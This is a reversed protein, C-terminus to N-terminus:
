GRAPLATVNDRPTVIRDIQASLAEFVALLQAQDARPDYTRRILSPLHGLAREAADVSAGSRTMLSRATRRLDHLTWNQVGCQRDFVPKRRSLGGLTHKGDTSFYFDSDGIRPLRNLVDLAARSLPRMLEIKTKSRIAPLSWTSGNVESRRLGTAESRRCASSLLFLVLASFPEPMNAEATTWVARLEDDSLVRDRPTIKSRMMGRVVPSRFDDSRAAHWNMIRRIIALVSDAAKPGNNDEIRDLLNNIESRRIQDIPRDGLPRFVLRELTRQQREASRLQGGQRRFYSAAIAAFTDEAALRAQQQRQRKTIAPNIGREVQYLADAAERRAAALSIGAQLTLKAPRGAIRYRVAYTRRGTPHVIVYLNGGIPKEYREPRPKLAKIGLDTIQRTM